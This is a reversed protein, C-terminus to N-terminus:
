RISFRWSFETIISHASYKENEGVCSYRKDRGSHFTMARAKRCSSDTQKGSDVHQAWFSLSQKAETVIIQLCSVVHFLVNQVIFM